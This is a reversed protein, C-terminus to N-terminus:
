PKVPVGADGMVRGQKMDVFRVIGQKDTVKMQGKANIGGEPIPEKAIHKTTKSTPL